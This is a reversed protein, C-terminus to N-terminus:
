SALLLAASQGGTLFFASLRLLLFGSRMFSILGHRGPRTRAKDPPQHLVATKEGFSYQISLQGYQTGQVCYTVCKNDHSRIGMDFLSKISIRVEGIPKDRTLSRKCYLKVVLNAGPLQVANETLTYDVTFDWRPNVGGRKDSKSKKMSEPQENLSVKCYVKMRDTIRYDPLGVASVVTVRVKRGDIFKMM